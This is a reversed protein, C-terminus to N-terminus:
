RPMSRVARIAQLLRRGGPYGEFRAQIRGDEDLVFFTPVRRVGCTAGISRNSSDDVGRSLTAGDGAANGQGLGGHADIAVPFWIDRSAFARRAVPQQSADVAICLVGADLAALQPHLRKFERTVDKWTDCWFAWFILMTAKKLRARNIDAHKSAGSHPTARVPALFSSLTIERMEGRQTCRTAGATSWRCETALPLRFDPVIAGATLPNRMNDYYSGPLMVSPTEQLEPTRSMRRAVTQVVNDAPAKAAPNADPAQARVCGPM